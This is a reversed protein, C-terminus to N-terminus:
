GCCYGADMATSWAPYRNNYAEKIFDLNEKIQRDSEQESYHWDSLMLCRRIDEAYEDFSSYNKFETCSKCFAKEEETMVVGRKKEYLVIEKKM